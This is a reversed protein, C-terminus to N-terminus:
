GVAPQAVQRGACFAFINNWVEQFATDHFGSASGLLDYAHFTRGEGHGASVPKYHGVIDMHDAPVLVNDGEPWFM